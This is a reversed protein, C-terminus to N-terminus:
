MEMEKKKGDNLITILRPFHIMELTEYAVAASVCKMDLQFLKPVKTEREREDDVRM